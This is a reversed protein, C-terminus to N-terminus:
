VSALERATLRAIAGALANMRSAVVPPYTDATALWAADLTYLADAETLSLSPAVAALAYADATVEQPRDPFVLNEPRVRLRTLGFNPRVHDNCIFQHHPNHVMSPYMVYGTPVRRAAFADLAWVAARVTDPDGVGPSYFIVHYQSMDDARLRFSGAKM